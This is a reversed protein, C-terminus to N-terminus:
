ADEDLAEPTSALLVAYGQTKLIRIAREVKRADPAHHTGRSEAAQEADALEYGQERLWKVITAMGKQGIGDAKELRRWGLRAVEHPAFQPRNFLRRLANLQMTPLALHPASPAGGRSPEGGPAERSSGESSTRRIDVTRIPMDTQEARRTACRSM